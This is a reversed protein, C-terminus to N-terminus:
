SRGDEEDDRQRGGLAVGAGANFAAAAAEAEAAREEGMQDIEEETYGRERLIQRQSVGAQKQLVAVSWSDTESRPAPDEWTTELAVVTGSDIRVALAMADAWDSGFDRQRDLLKKVFPTEATRLAEGSPAADSSLMLVHMPTKSVRAIDAKDERQADLFGTPQGAAFEGFTPRNEGDGGAAYWVGGPEFPWTARGTTEDIAPEVGVAYRQPMAFFEQAVAMDARSKNLADQLPIVDALESRGFSNTRANNGFHFVPVADYPNPIPWPEGAVLWPEFGDGKEPLNNGDSRAAYKEIREPYYLTVRWRKADEDYWCKAARDIREPSEPDYHVTVQSAVQPWLVAKGDAGPWVVLYGDGTTLAEAHVEGSRREMRNRRWIEATIRSVTDDEGEFAVLTFGTVQLRDAVADVVSACFNDVMRDTKLKDGFAKRLKESVYSIRQEGRYYREYLAYTPRREALSRLAWTIHEAAEPTMVAADTISDTVMTVM